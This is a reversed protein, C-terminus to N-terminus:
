ESENGGFGPLFRVVRAPNGYVVAGEPVSRTVVSGAGVLAYAGIEIGPLLIAGAGISSHHRVHTEIFKEPYEKSRPFKDNSFIVGPGVFADNEIRVGDWVYVGSKITARDGVFVDNEILCHANINVMSGIEAGPLVVCYQWIQTGSGIKDTQVDATEHIRRFEPQKSNM